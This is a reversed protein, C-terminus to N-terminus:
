HQNVENKGAMKVLHTLLHTFEAKVDRVDKVIRQDKSQYDLTDDM